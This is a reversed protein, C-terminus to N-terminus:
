IDELKKDSTDIMQTKPTVVKNNNKQSASLKSQLEDIVKKDEITQENEESDFSDAEFGTVNINNHRSIDSKTRNIKSISLIEKKEELQRLMSGVKSSVEDLQNLLKEKEAKPSPAPRIPMAYTKNSKLANYQLQSFQSPTVTGADSDDIFASKNRKHQDRVIHSATRPEEGATYLFHDETFKPMSPSHPSTKVSHQKIMPKSSM